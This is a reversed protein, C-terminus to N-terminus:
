RRASDGEALIWERWVLGAGDRCLVRVLPATADPGGGRPVPVVAVVQEDDPDPWGGAPLADWPEAGWGHSREGHADLEIRDRGVLVEGHVVGAQRYQRYREGSADYPPVAVEWELDWGVPLREGIEGTLADHPDDLRVGFAELGYTWHEFPTECTLEAWLGEARVELAESRPSAVDHDRVVIPGDLGPLVLYGWFWAGPRHPHLVLRVFGGLGDGRAFDLHWWENWGPAAGPEHRREDAAVLGTV